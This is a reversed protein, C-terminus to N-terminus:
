SLYTTFHFPNPLVFEHGSRAVIGVNAQLSQPLCLCDWDPYGSGSCLNSSPVAPFHTCLTVTSIVQQTTQQSRTLTVGDAGDVYRCATGKVHKQMKALM